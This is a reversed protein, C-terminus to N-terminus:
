LEPRMASWGCAWFTPGRQSFARKSRSSTDVSSTEHMRARARLESVGRNEVGAADRVGAQRSSSSGGGQLNSGLVLYPLLSYVNAASLPLFRGLRLYYLCSAIWSHCPPHSSIRVQDSLACVGAFFGGEPEYTCAYM